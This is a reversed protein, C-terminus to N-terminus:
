ESDFFAPSQSIVERWCKEAEKLTFNSLHKSNDIETKEPSKQVFAIRNALFVGSSGYHTIVTENSQLFVNKVDKLKRVTSLLM